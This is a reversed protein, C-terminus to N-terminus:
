CTPLLYPFSDHHPPAQPDFSLGEGWREIEQGHLQSSTLFGLQMDGASHLQRLGTSARVM